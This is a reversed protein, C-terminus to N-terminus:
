IAHTGSETSSSEITANTNDPKPEQKLSDPPVQVPDTNVKAGCGTCFRSNDPLEKGCKSCFM